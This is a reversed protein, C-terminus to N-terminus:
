VCIRPKDAPTLTLTLLAVSRPLPVTLVDADVARVDVLVVILHVADVDQVEGAGADARIAADVGADANGIRVGQLLELNLGRGVVRAIAAVGAGVDVDDRFGAGVVDVPRQELEEAVGIELRVVEEAVAEASLGRWGHVACGAAHRLYQILILEAADTPMGM